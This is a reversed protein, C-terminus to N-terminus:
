RHLMWAGPVRTVIWWYQLAEMPQLDICAVALQLATTGNSVAVGYKMGCYNAWAQEFAGIFRGESSVWGTKLCEMIYESERPGICPENVPIMKAKEKFRLLFSDVVTM